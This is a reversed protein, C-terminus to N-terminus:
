FPLGESGDAQKKLDEPTQGLGEATFDVVPKATVAPKAPAVTKSNPDVKKGTMRSFSAQMRQLEEPTAPPKMKGMPNNIWAVRCREKIEGDKEYKEDECVIQVEREAYNAQNNLWIMDVGDWGLASMLSDVQKHNVGSSCTIMLYATIFYKDGAKVPRWEDKVKDYGQLVEVQATFQMFGNPTNSLSASRIFGRAKGAWKWWAM